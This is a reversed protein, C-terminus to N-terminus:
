PSGRLAFFAPIRATPMTTMLGPLGVPATSERPSCRSSRGSQASPVSQGDDGVLDILLVDVGRPASGSTRSPSARSPRCPMREEAQVRDRLAEEALAAVPAAVELQAVDGVIHEASNMLSCDILRHALDRALEGGVQHDCRGSRRHSSRATRAPAPHCGARGSPLLRLDEALADVPDRPHRHVDRLARHVGEDPELERLLRAHLGSVIDGASRSAVARRSRRRVAQGQELLRPDAHHRAGSEALQRSGGNGCWKGAAAPPSRSEPRGAPRTGGENHPLQTM